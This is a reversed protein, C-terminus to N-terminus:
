IVADGFNGSVPKRVWFTEHLHIFMNTCAHILLKAWIEVTIDSMAAIEEMPREPVIPPGDM